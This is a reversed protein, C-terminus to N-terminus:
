DYLNYAWVYLISFSLSKSCFCVCVCLKHGVWLFQVCMGECMSYTDKKLIYLQMCHYFCFECVFLFPPPPLLLSHAFLAKINIWYFVSPHKKRAWDTLYFDMYAYHMLAYMHFSLSKPFKQRIQSEWEM